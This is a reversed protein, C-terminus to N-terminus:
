SLMRNHCVVTASHLHATHLTCVRCRWRPWRGVYFRMESRRSIIICRTNTNRGIFPLRHLMALILLCSNVVCCVIKTSAFLASANDATSSAKTIKERQQRKKKREKKRERKRCVPEAPQHQNTTEISYNWLKVRFLTYAHTYTPTQPRCLIFKFAYAHAHTHTHDHPQKLSNATDSRHIFSCQQM